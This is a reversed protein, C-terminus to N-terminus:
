WRWRAADIHDGVFAPWDIQRMSYSLAKYALRAFGSSFPKGIPKANLREMSAHFPGGLGTEGFLESYPEGMM